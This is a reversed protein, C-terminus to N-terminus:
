KSEEASLIRWATAAVIPVQGDGIAALREMRDAVGDAVGCQAPNTRWFSHRLGPLEAVKADVARFLEGDGDAHARLWYRTRIHDAGLDRAGLAVCRATYGMQELEDAARDIARRQVNEAFVYRPATEAVIRRM